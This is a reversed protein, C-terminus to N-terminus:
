SMTRGGLCARSYFESQLNPPLYIRQAVATQRQEFLDEIITDEQNIDWCNGRVVLPNIYTAPNTTYGQATSRWHFLPIELALSTGEILLMQLKRPICTRNRILIHPVLWFQVLSPWNPLSADCGSYPFERACAFEKEVVTQPIRTPYIKTLYGRTLKHCRVNSRDLSIGAGLRHGPTNSCLHM